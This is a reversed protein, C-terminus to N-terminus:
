WPCTQLRSTATVTVSFSLNQCFISMKAWYRCFLLIKASISKKPPFAPAVRTKTSILQFNTCFKSWLSFNSLICSKNGSSIEVWTCMPGFTLCKCNWFLMECCHLFNWRCCFQSKGFTRIMSICKASRNSRAFWFSGTTTEFPTSAKKLIGFNEILM